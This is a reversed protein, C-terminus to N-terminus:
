GCPDYSGEEEVVCMCPMADPGSSCAGQTATSCDIRDTQCEGMCQDSDTCEEEADDFFCSCLGPSTLPGTQWCGGNALCEQRTESTFCAHTTPEDSCSVHDESLSCATLLLSLLM